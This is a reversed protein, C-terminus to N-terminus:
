KGKKRFKRFVLYCIVAVFIVIVAAAIQSGDGARPEDFDLVIDRSVQGKEIGPGIYSIALQGSGRYVLPFDFVTQKNAKLSTLYDIGITEGGMILKAELSKAESTGKNAVEIRLRGREPNAEMNIVDLSIVGKVPIGIDFVAQREANEGDMYYATISTIYTKHDASMDINIEFGSEAEEGPGLKGIYVSGGSLVPVLYSSSSNLSLEMYGAGGTGVNKIKANIDVTSGPEIDDPSVRVDTLILKPSGRVSVPLGKKMTGMPTKNSYVYFEVEYTNTTVSDDVHLTYSSKVSSGSGIKAFERRMDGLVLTFPHEPRIEIIVGEAVGLGNNEIYVDLEVNGGPEVPVPSQGALAIGLNAGELVGLAMPPLMLCALICPLIGTLKGM